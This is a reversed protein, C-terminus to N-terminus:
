PRPPPANKPLHQKCAAHASEVKDSKGDYNFVGNVPDPFDPVGNTRMCEVYAKTDVTPPPAQPQQGGGGTPAFQKCAETAKTFEPATVDVGTEPGIQIMGDAGPTPYNTVGNRRMCDVLAAVRASRDANPTSASTGAGRDGLNSGILIGGVVLVVAVLVGAAVVAGMRGGRRAAPEDPVPEGPGAPRTRTDGPDDPVVPEGPASVNSEM